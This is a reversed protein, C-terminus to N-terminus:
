RFIVNKFSINSLNNVVQYVEKKGQILITINDRMNNCLLELTLLELTEINCGDEIILTYNKDESLTSILLKYDIENNLKVNYFSFVINSIHSIKYLRKSWIKRNKTTLLDKLNEGIIITNMTLDKNLINLIKYNPEPYNNLIWEQIEDDYYIFSKLGEDLEDNDKTVDYETIQTTELFEIKITYIDLFLRKIIDEIQLEYNEYPEELEIISYCTSNNKNYKVLFLNSM